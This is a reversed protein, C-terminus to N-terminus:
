HAAHLTARLAGLAAACCVLGLLRARPRAWVLASGLGSVASLITLARPDLYALEGALLGCLGATCLILLLM